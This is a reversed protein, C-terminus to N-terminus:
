LDVFATIEETPIPLSELYKIPVQSSTVLKSDIDGKEPIFGIIEQLGIPNSKIWNIRNIHKGLEDKAGGRFRNCIEAIESVTRAFRLNKCEIIQVQKSSNWALVDIDGLRACAGLQKMKVETCTKWGQPNLTKAVLNVFKHGRIDNIKGVYQKMENSEFFENPFDGREMARLTHSLSRKVSNAGFVVKADEFEGFVLIPKVTASLRRQYRWPSIDKPKFGPPPEDWQPRHIISFSRIFKNCIESPLKKFEAMCAILEGITTVIVNNKSDIAVKFLTAFGDIANQLTIGFEAHFADLFQKDYSEEVQTNQTNNNIKYHNPYEKVNSEVLNEYQKSFFPKVISENYDRNITYEGNSHIEIQPSDILNKHVADSDTAVELLLMINAVLTDLDWLSLQRGGTEPCECIAMELTSQLSLAMKVLESEQNEAIAVVNEESGHLALLAKLTRNWQGRVSLISEYVKLAEVIVSERDLENLLNQLHRWVKKVVNNLFDQSDSETNILDGGHNPICDDSLTLKSFVFNELAFKITSDKPVTAALKELPDYTPFVHIVCADSGGLVRRTVNGVKIEDEIEDIGQLLCVLSKAVASTLLHEGKNEPQMFNFIFDTPFEIEAVQKSNNVTIRPEVISDLLCLDAYNEPYEVCDFNLRIETINKKSKSFHKEIEIALKEFLPLFGSWINYLLGRIQEDTQSLKLVLWHYGLPTEVVAANEGVRFHELSGYIPRNMQSKFYSDTNFRRVPLLRSSTTPVSHHDVRERTERRVPLVFDNTLMIRNGDEIRKDLPILQYYNKQWHCYFNYDGNINWFDIGQKVAWKKQELCKLFKTMSEGPECALMLLDSICIISINWNDSFNQFDLMFRRGIGGMVILTTGARFEPIARFYNLVKRLYDTLNAKLEDSYQMVSNLGQNEAHDLRDHLLVIHIFKDIDYMGLCSHNLPIQSDPKPLVLQNGSNNKGTKIQLRPLVEQKIQGLQYDAVATAFQNLHNSKRLCTLVFRRVAPSVAHPLAFVLEEDFDILPYRELSSNGIIEERLCEKNKPTLIFPQLNKRSVGISDLDERTFTIERARRIVRIDPMVNVTGQPASEASHWRELNLREAICDSLQMLAFIPEILENLDHFSNNNILTDIVAQLFYDNSEWRGEFIRFNGKPTAINSIFVNEVPDVPDDLFPISSIRNLWMNIRELRPRRNGNCHITALHVLLNIRFTNAQLSPVTLLAAFQSVTNKFDYKQLSKSLAKLGPANFQIM